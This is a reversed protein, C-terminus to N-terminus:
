QEFWRALDRATKFEIGNGAPDSLQLSGSEQATGQDVIAPAVPLSVGSRELRAALDEWEDWPLFVGFHQVYFHSAAARHRAADEGGVEKLALHHGFFDYDVRTESGKGPLIEACGLVEGYFHRAAGLDDVALSHHFISRQETTALSM